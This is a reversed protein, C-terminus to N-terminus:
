NLANEKRKAYRDSVIKLKKLCCIVHEVSNKGTINRSNRRKEENTLPNTKNDKLPTQSNKL